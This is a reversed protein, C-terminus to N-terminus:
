CFSFFCQFTIVNQKVNLKANTTNNCGIVAISIIANIILFKCVKVEKQLSLKRRNKQNKRNKPEDPGETGRKKLIHRAVCAGGCLLGVYPLYPTVVSVINKIEDRM